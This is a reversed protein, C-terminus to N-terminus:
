RATEDALMNGLRDCLLEAARRHGRATWHGDLPWYTAADGAFEPLLDLCEIGRASCYKSLRHQWTADQKWGLVQAKEPVLVICMKAGSAQIQRRLEDLILTMLNMQRRLLTSTSDPADDASREIDTDRPRAMQEIRFRTWNYAHSRELVRELFPVRRREIRGLEGNFAEFEVGYERALRSKTQWVTSDYPVPSNTLVLGGDRYVFMPKAQNHRETSAIDFFDNRFLHLVVVDAGLGRGYEDFM